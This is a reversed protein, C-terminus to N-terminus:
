NPRHAADVFEQCKSCSCARRGSYTESTSDLMYIPGHYEQGWMKRPGKWSRWVRPEAPLWTDGLCVEFGTTPIAEDSVSDTPSLHSLFNEVAEQLTKDIM